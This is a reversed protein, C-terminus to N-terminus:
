CMRPFLCLVDSGRKGYPAVWGRRKNDKSKGVCGAATRSKENVASRQGSDTPAGYSEALPLVLVAHLSCLKPCALAQAQRYVEATRSAHEKVPVPQSVHVNLNCLRGALDVYRVTHRHSRPRALGHLVSHM